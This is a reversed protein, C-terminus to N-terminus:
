DMRDPEFFKSRDVNSGSQMFVGSGRYHFTRPYKPSVAVRAAVIQLVFFNYERVLRTDLVECEFNAYCEKILPADIRTGSQATLGFEEFKDLEAGTTNGIAIATEMLHVEPLNICCQKSKKILNHSYNADWIYCGVIDYGMMAHWGMTMISRNDKWESSVM